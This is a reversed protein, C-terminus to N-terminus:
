VQVFLKEYSHVPNAFEQFNGLNTSTLEKACAESVAFAIKLSINRPKYFTPMSLPSM